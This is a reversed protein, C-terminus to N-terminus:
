INYHWLLPTSTAPSILNSKLGSPLDSPYIVLWTPKSEATIAYKFVFNLVLLKLKSLTNDKDNRKIREKRCSEIRTWTLLM